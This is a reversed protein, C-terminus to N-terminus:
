RGGRLLPLVFWLGAILAANAGAILGALVGGLLTQVVLYVALGIALAILASAAIFLRNALFILREKDVERFHMRHYITPTVLLALGGSASLLSALYLAREFGTIETGGSFPLIILFGLLIEVGPLMVRTEDLLEALERDVRQKASEGPARGVTDGRSETDDM